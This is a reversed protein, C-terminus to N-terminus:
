PRVTLGGIQTSTDEIEIDCPGCTKDAKFTHTVKKGPELEFKLDYVHLHVEEAKDGTISITVTDGQKAQLDSPTMTNGSVTVDYSVQRGGGGSNKAILIGGVAAFVVLVAVLAIVGNRTM